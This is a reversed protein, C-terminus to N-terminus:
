DASAVAVATRGMKLQGEFFAGEQMVLTGANIEGTVRGSPRIELRGSCHIQGDVQGSVTISTATVKATVTAGEEIYIENRSEIEGQVRGRVRISSESKFSGDVTTQEGIVSEVDDSMATAPAPRPAPRAVSMNVDQSATRPAAPTAVTSQSPSAAETEVTQDLEDRQRSPVAKSFRTWETEETKKFM